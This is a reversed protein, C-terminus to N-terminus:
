DELCCGARVVCAIKSTGKAAELLFQQLVSPNLCATVFLARGDKSAAGYWCWDADETEESPWPKMVGPSVECQDNILQTGTLHQIISVQLCSKEYRTVNDANTDTSSPAEM